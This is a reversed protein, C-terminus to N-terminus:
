PKRPRSSSGSKPRATSGSRPRSSSGSKSRAASGSRSRSSSGSSRVKSSGSGSRSPAKAAPPRSRRDSSASSQDRRPASPGGRSTSSDPRIRDLTRERASQSKVGDLVRRAPAENRTSFSRRSESLTSLKDPRPSRPVEQRKAEFRRLREILAWDDRSDDVRGFTPRSPKVSASSKRPREVAWPGRPTKGALGSGTGIIEAPRGSRDRAFGASREKPIAAVARRTEETLDTRRGVFSSVDPLKAAAMRGRNHTRRLAEFVQTPKGWHEPRVPRTDTTIIGRPVAHLRRSRGMEHGSRWYSRYSRRGFYRVPCFTWYSYSDWYGGAWGYVGFHFNFGFRPGYFRTYYGAPIWATHTPGWYWYVWAPSYTLGPYWLWGYGPAYDWTGYHATIWGWPEYAVWSLGSPTYTWWGDYFPRWGVRVHPRWAWRGSVPVWYGARELPAAAYQLSDDVYEVQAQRAEGALESGWLELADYPGAAYVAIEPRVEGEIRITEGDRAIASGQETNIEAFGGRVVVETWDRGDTAVRYTGPTHLYVSANVGTVQIPEESRVYGEAVIQIEGEFLRLSTPAGVESDASAALTEFFLETSEDARLITQDPLVLEARSGDAVWIRDGSLVPFNPEVELPEEGQELGSLLIKGEVTRYFGYGANDEEATAPLASLFPVVLTLIALRSVLRFRSTNGM